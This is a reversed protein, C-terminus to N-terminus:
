RMKRRRRTERPNQLFQHPKIYRMSKMLYKVSEKLLSHTVLSKGHSIEDILEHNDIMCENLVKQCSYRVLIDLMFIESCYRM